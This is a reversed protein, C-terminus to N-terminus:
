LLNWIKRDNFSRLNYITKKYKVTVSVSIAWDQNFIKRWMAGRDEPIATLIGVSFIIPETKPSEEWDERKSGPSASECVTADM